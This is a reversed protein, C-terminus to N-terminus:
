RLFVLVATIGAFIALAVSEGIIWQTKTSSEKTSRTLSDSLNTIREDRLRLATAYAQREETLTQEQESLKLTLDELQVGLLKVRMTIEQWMEAPITVSTPVAALSSVSLLLLLAVLLRWRSNSKAGCM